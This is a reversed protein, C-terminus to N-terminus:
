NSANSGGQEVSVGEAVPADSMPLSEPAKEGPMSGSDGEFASPDSEGTDNQDVVVGAPGPSGIEPVSTGTGENLTPGSGEESILSDDGEAYLVPVGALAVLFLALLVFIMKEKM